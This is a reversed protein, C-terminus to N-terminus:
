DQDDHAVEQLAEEKLAHDIRGADATLWAAGIEQLTRLEEPAINERESKAFGYLF